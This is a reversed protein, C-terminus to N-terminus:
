SSYEENDLTDREIQDAKRLNKIQKPTLIDTHPSIDLLHALDALNETSTLWDIRQKSLDFPKSYSRLTKKGNEYLFYEHFYSMALERISRYVPERYRLVAHNTKSVAGWCGDIKFLAVVHDFDPRVTKLDLILPKRGQMQFAAAAVLAGEFCHAKGAKLTEAVSRHTEGRKEFNFRLKNVFDQIKAPTRM